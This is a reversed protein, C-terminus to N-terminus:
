RMYGVLLSKAMSFRCSSDFCRMAMFESDELMIGEEEWIMIFSTYEVSKETM